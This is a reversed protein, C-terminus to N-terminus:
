VIGPGTVALGILGLLFIIVMYLFKFLFMGIGIGFGTKIATTLKINMYLKKM